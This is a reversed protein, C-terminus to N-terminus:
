RKVKKKAAAKYPRKRGEKCGGKSKPVKKGIKCGGKMARTKVM